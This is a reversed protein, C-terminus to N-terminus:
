SLHASTLFLYLPTTASIDYNIMYYFTVQSVVCLVNLLVHNPHYRSDFQFVCVSVTIYFLYDCLFTISSVVILGHQLLVPQKNSAPAKGNRGQPFRSMSIIYGDATVVQLIFFHFFLLLLLLISYYLHHVYMITTVYILLICSPPLLACVPCRRRRRMLPLLPLQSQFSSWPQLLWLLYPRSVCERKKKTAELSIIQVRHLAPCDTNAIPVLFM